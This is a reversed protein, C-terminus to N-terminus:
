EKSEWWQIGDRIVIQSNIGELGRDRKGFKELILKLNLFNVIQNDYKEKLSVIEQDKEDKM